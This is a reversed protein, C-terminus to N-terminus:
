CRKLVLLGHSRIDHEHIHWADPNEIMFHDIAPRIGLKHVSPSGSRHEHKWLHHGTDGDAAWSGFTITDHFILWKQVHAGHRLLEGRCQEYTHLSDIFLLDCELPLADLSSMQRFQWRGEAAAEIKDRDKCRKIDYSIVRKAGMLLACASAGRRTGFEIALDCGEAYNALKPLHFASASMSSCHMEFLDVLERTAMHKDM